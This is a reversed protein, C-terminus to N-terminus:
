AIIGLLESTLVEHENTVTTKSVFSLDNQKAINKCETITLKGHADLTVIEDNVENVCKIHTIQVKVRTKHTPNIDM